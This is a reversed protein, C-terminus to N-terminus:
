DLEKFLDKNNNDSSNLRQSAAGSKANKEMEEGIFSHCATLLFLACITIIKKSM